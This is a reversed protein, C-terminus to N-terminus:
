RRPAQVRYDIAASRGTALQIVMFGGGGINGARPLTVATALGVAVAADVANGGKRLIETGIECPVRGEASVMARRARVPEASAAQFHPVLPGALALPFCDRRRM